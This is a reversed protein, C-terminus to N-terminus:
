RAQPLVVTLPATSSSVVFPGVRAGLHKRQSNVDTYSATAVYSLGEHVLFSFRGDLDTKIGVAVQRWTAVGDSLSIFAGSVPRGDDFTVTGKLQYTRRAPPLMM